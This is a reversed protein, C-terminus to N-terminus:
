DGRDINYLCELVCTCACMPVIDHSRMCQSFSTHLILQMCMTKRPPITPVVGLVCKGLGHKFIKKHQVAMTTNHRLRAFRFRAAHSGYSISHTHKYQHPTICIYEPHYTVLIFLYIAKCYSAHTVPQQEHAARGRPFSQIPDASRGALTCEFAELRRSSESNRERDPLPGM